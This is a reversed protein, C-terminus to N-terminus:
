TNHTYTWTAAATTATWSSWRLNTLYANGDGCALVITNPEVSPQSGFNTCQNLVSPVPARPPLSKDTTTLWYGGAQSPAAVAAVPTSASPPTAGLSGHFPADGFSFVGGDAGLLWYGHGDRTSTMAVVPAVLQSPPPSGYAHAGGFAVVSGTTVSTAGASDTPLSVMVGVLAALVSSVLLKRTRDGSRTRLM